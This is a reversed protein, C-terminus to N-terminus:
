NKPRRTFKAATVIRVGVIGPDFEPDDIFKGRCWSRLRSSNIDRKLIADKHTIDLVTRAFTDAQEKEEETFNVSVTTLVGGDLGNAEMFAVAADIDPANSLSGYALPGLAVRAGSPLGFESVGAATMLNPLTTVMIQELQQNLQKLKESQESIMAELDLAREIADTVSMTDGQMEDADAAMEALVAPDIQDNQM